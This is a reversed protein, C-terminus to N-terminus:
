LLKMRLWSEERRRGGALELEPLVRLDKERGAAKKGLILAPLNLTWVDRDFAYVKASVRKVSEFDSLGPIEALFDISRLRDFAYFIHRKALNRRGL